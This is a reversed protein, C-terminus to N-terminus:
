ASMRLRPQERPADEADADFDLFYGLRADIPLHLVDALGVLRSRDLPTSGLKSPAFGLRRELDDPTLGDLPQELALEDDARYARILWM